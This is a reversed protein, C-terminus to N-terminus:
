HITTLTPLLRNPLGVQSLCLVIASDEQALTLLALAIFEPEQQPTTGVYYILFTSIDSSLTYLVLPHDFRFDAPLGLM